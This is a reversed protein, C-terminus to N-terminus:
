KKLQKTTQLKKVEANIFTINIYELINIRKFFIINNYYINVIILVVRRKRFFVIIDIQLDYKCYQKFIKLQKNLIRLM